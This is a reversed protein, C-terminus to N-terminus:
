NIVNDIFKGVAEGIQYCGYGAACVATVVAAAGLVTMGGDVANMENESMEYFGNSIKMEM